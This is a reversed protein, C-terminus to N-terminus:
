WCPVSAVGVLPGGGFCALVVLAKIIINVHGSNTEKYRVAARLLSMRALVAGECGAQGKGGPMVATAGFISYIASCCLAQEM